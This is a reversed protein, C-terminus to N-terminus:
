MHICPAQAVVSCAIGVALNPAITREHSPTCWQPSTHDADNTGALSTDLRDSLRAMPATPLSQRPNVEDAHHIPPYPDNIAGDNKM